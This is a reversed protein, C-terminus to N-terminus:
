NHTMPGDVDVRRGNPQLGRVLSPVVVLPEVELKRASFAPPVHRKGVGLTALLTLQVGDCPRGADHMKHKQSLQGPAM